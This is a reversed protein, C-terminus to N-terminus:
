CKPRRQPPPWTRHNFRDFWKQRVADRWIDRFISIGLSALSLTMSLLLVVFAYDKRPFNTEVMWLGFGSIVLWMLIVWTANSIKKLM